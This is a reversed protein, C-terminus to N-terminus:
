IIIGYLYVFAFFFAPLFLIGTLVDIVFGKASWSTQRVKFYQAILVVFVALCIMGLLVTCPLEIPYKTPNSFAFIAFCNLACGLGAAGVGSLTLAIASTKIGCNKRVTKSFLLCFVSSVVLTIGFLILVFPLGDFLRSLMYMYTPADAGGIIGVGFNNSAYIEWFAVPMAFAVLLLVVGSLLVWLSMQKLKM